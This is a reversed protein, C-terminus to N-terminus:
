LLDTTLIFPVTDTYVTSPSDSRASATREAGQGCPSVEVDKLLLVSLTIHHGRFFAFMSDLIYRSGLSCIEM